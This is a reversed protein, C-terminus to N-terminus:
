ESVLSSSSSEQYKIKAGKAKTPKIELSHSHRRTQGATNETLDSGCVFKSTDTCSELPKCVRGVVYEATRRAVKDDEGCQNSSIVQIDM